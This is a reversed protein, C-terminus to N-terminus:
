NFRSTAPFSAPAENEEPPAISKAYDDKRRQDLAAFWDRAEQEATVVTGDEYHPSDKATYGNCVVHEGTEDDWCYLGGSKDPTVRFAM